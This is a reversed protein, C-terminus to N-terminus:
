TPVTKWSSDRPSRVPHIRFHLAAARLARARRFRDRLRRRRTGFKVVWDRWAFVRADKLDDGDAVTRTELWRPLQAELAAVPPGYREGSWTGHRVRQSEPASM